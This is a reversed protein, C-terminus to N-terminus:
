FPPAPPPAILEDSTRENGAYDRARVAVRATNSPLAARYHNNGQAQLVVQQTQNNAVVQAVVSAVGSEADAVIAWIYLTQSSRELEV